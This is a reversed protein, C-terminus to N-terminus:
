RAFHFHTTLIIFTLLIQFVFQIDSMDEVDILQRLNPQTAKPEVIISADPNVAKSSQQPHIYRHRRELNTQLRTRLRDM